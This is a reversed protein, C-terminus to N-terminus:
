LARTHYLYWEVGMILLVLLILWTYFERNVRVERKGSIEGPQATGSAIAEAVGQVRLTQAPTINSEEDSLLSVPLIDQGVSKSASDLYDLTYIGTQTTQSLTFDRTGLSITTESKDPATIRVLETRLPAVLDVHQGAAASRGVGTNSAQGLFNITNAMFIPFAARLPFDSRYIDFALYVTRQGQQEGEVFLPGESADVVTRGWPQLKCRRMAQLRLTGLNVYRLLASARDVGVVTLVVPPDANFDNAVEGDAIVPLYPHTTSNIFLYSATPDNGSPADGEVVWVDIEAKGGQGGTLTKGDYTYFDVEKLSKLVRNLLLSEGSTCLAVKYRVQKPMLIYAKDDTPLPDAGGVDERALSVEIPKNIYPMGSLLLEQRQGAKLEVERVDLPDGGASFTLEVKQPTGYYNHLAIFLQYEETYPNRRAGASVIGINESQKGLPFYSIKLDTTAFPDLEPVAGDSFIVVRTDSGAAVSSVLRLAANLDAVGGADQRAKDVAALLESKNKTFSALIRPQPGAAIVMGEDNRSFDSVLASAEKLARGLRDPKEDTALMSASTDILVVTRGGSLATGFIFPRALALALLVLAIIQLIMLLNRRLRQWPANAKFDRVEREWLLTSSIRVKLRKLKLIYLLVIGGALVSLVLAWPNLFFRDV